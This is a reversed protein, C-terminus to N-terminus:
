IIPMGLAWAAMAGAVTARIWGRLAPLRRVLVARQAVGVVAGEFAGLLVFTAAFILARITNAPEGAHKFAMFGLTAVAGLGVFEGVANAAVWQQWFRTRWSPSANPNM